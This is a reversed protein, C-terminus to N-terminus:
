PSQSPHKGTAAIHVLPVVSMGPALLVGVADPSKDFTIKVPIRQVVKVYNGTANEPPLLSFRAGTGRQISEVHGKFTIDPYADVTIDVPQGAQMHTLQTEKFNATVWVTKPVVAMLPQGVQVFAGPEVSKRTVFGDAPSTIHTYSLNLRAQEVQAQAKDAEAKSVDALARKKLIRKPAAQAAALRAKAQALKAKKLAVQAQTRHRNDKAAKKAAESQRLVARCTEVRKQASVLDAASIREAAIAHDLDRGSVTRASRMEEYRKLDEADREHRARASDVEAEAQALTATNISIQATAQDYQSATQQALAEAAELAARAAKVDSEAGHLDATSTITILDVDTKRSRYVAEGASLAAEAAHLTARFDAPNLDVLPDGEKVRQNDNVYVRAVHGAVRPSVAIVHGEIFADDTSEFSLAHLYYLFGLGLAIVALSVVMGRWLRTRKPKPPHDKDPTGQPPIMDPPHRKDKEISNSVTM